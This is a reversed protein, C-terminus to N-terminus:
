SWGLCCIISSVVPWLKHSLTPFGLPNWVAEYCDCCFSYVPRTELGMDSSLLGFYLFSPPIPTPPSWPLVRPAVDWDQSLEWCCPEAALHENCFSHDPNSGQTPFIGQLLWHCAGGTSKGPFDWPHLLRAPQLGHPRQPDSVLSCRWKVRVKKM